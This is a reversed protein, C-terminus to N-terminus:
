HTDTYVQQEIIEAQIKGAMHQPPKNYTYAYGHDGHKTKGLKMVTVNNQRPFIVPLCCNILSYKTITMLNRIQYIDVILEIDM